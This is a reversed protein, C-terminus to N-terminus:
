ISLIYIGAYNDAFSVDTNSSSINQDNSSLQLNFNQRNQTEFKHSDDLLPNLMSYNSINDDVSHIRRKKGPISICENSVDHKGMGFIFIKAPDSPKETSDIESFFNKTNQNFSSQMDKRNLQSSEFSASLEQDFKTQIENSHQKNHANRHLSKRYIM